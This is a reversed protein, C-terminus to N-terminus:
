FYMGNNELEDLLSDGVIDVNYPTIFYTYRAVKQIKGDLAYAVGGLFDTLRNSTTKDASELNLVVPRKERLHDAIVVAEDFKVPTVVAVTLQTTTHINVVKSGPRTDPMKESKDQQAASNRPKGFVEEISDEDDESYPRTLKWLSDLLGM